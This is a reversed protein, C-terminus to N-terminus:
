YFYAVAYFWREKKFNLYCKRSIPDIVKLSGDLSATIVINKAIRQIAEINSLDLQQIPSPLQCGTQAYDIFELKGKNGGRLLLDGSLFEISWGECVTFQKLPDAWNNAAGWVNVKKKCSVVVEGGIHQKMQILFGGDGIHPIHRTCLGQDIDWMRLDGNWEGSMIEINNIRIIGNITSTHGRLTQRHSYTASGPSKSWIILSKDESGSVLVGERVNCLAYVINTHGCLTSIIARGEIDWIKITKDSSGSLLIRNSNLCLCDIGFHHGCFSGMHELSNSFLYIRGNGGAGAFTACKYKFIGGINKNNMYYGIRPVIRLYEVNLVATKEEEM